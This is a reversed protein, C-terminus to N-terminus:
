KKLAAVLDARDAKEAEARDMGQAVAYEVWADKSANGHPTGGSEALKQRAASRKADGEADTRSPAVPAVDAQAPGGPKGDGVLRETGLVPVGSADLGAPESGPIEAILGGALNHTRELETMGPGIVAGRLLLLKATGLPGTQTILACHGIVQYRTDAM